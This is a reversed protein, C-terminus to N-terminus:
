GTGKQKVTKLAEKLCLDMEQVNSVQRFAKLVHHPCGASALSTRVVCQEFKDNGQKSKLIFLINAFETVNRAQLADKENFSLSLFCQMMGPLFVQLVFCVFGSCNSSDGNIMFWQDVLERFFTLCVKKIVPDDVHIASDSMTQLVLELSGANTPSLLVPSVRYTVIHQLVTFTLKKVSLQETRLHPPIDSQGVQEDSPVLQHCKGLFPLLNPDISPIAEEKFKICLQNFLQSVDQIDDTTCHEILLQVFRSMTPLINSGICQIMRQLLIMIKARVRDNGPLAELVALSVSVTEAFVAQVEIPAKHFGKSLYAIAAVSGALLDGFYEPDRPLNESRLTEEMSQIHPAIVQTLSHQQESPALGTKGLLLGM